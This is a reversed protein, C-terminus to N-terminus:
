NQREREPQYEPRKFLQELYPKYEETASWFRFHPGEKTVRGEPYDAGEKSRAVSAIFTDLQEQMRKAVKPMKKFLDNEEAFDKELDYLLYRGNGRTLAIIKYNNDIM